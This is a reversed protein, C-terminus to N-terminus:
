YLRSKHKISKGLTGKFRKFFGEKEKISVFNPNVLQESIEIKMETYETTNITDFIVPLLDAGTYKRNFSKLMKEQFPDSALAIKKLGSRNALVKGYYLNETSHEALEETFINEKPVGLAIAYQAMVRAEIYKTYTAAGSFIINKTIGSKYLHVAWNVRMWMVRDWHNGDFPIGPVIVADYQKDQNATYEKVCSKQTMWCSSLILSLICIWIINRM